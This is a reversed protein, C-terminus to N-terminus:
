VTQNLNRYAVRQESVGGAGDFESLPTIVIPLFRTKM